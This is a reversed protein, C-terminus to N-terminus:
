KVLKVEIETVRGREIVVKVDQSAYNALTVRALYMGPKTKIIEAMGEMDSTATKGNVALIAGQLAAGTIADTIIANVGSHHTPLKDINRNVWYEKVLDPNSEAYESDMLNDILGLSKDIPRFLNELALTGETKHSKAADPTGITSEYAAIAANITTLDNATLQVSEMSAINASLADRINKVMAYARNESLKIFDSAHVDFVQALNDNATDVAWVYAKQSKKVVLNVMAAFANNKSATVGKIDALHQQIYTSLIANLSVFNAIEDKLRPFTAWVAMNVPNAFFLLMKQYM